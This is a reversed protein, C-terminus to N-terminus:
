ALEGLFSGLLDAVAAERTLFPAHGARALVVRRARPLLAALVESAGAPVIGDAEGHVLLAPALVTRALERQDAAALAELAGLAAQADPPDAGLAALAREREGAPLEGDAVCAAFFRALAKGPHIRMRAALGDVEAASLGHSYGDTRTFRATAAVLALGSVEIGDAALRAAAALAVQAGLSWGGLVPRELGLEHVLAAVDAGHDVVSRPGPVPPSRGHGRLDPLVVRARGALSRALGSLVLGSTAFGHVFLLPRGSGAEAFHLSRPPPAM